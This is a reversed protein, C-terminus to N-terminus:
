FFFFDILRFINQFTIHNKKKKKKKKLRIKLSMFHNLFIYIEIILGWREKSTFNPNKRQSKIGQVFRVKLVLIKKTLIGAVATM